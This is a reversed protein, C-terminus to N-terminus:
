YFFIILSFLTYVYAIYIYISVNMESRNIIIIIFDQMADTDALYPM